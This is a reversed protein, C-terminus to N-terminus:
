IIKAGEERMAPVQLNGDATFTFNSPEKARARFFSASDKPIPIQRKGRSKKPAEAEAQAPAEAPALAPAAEEEEVEEEVPAEVEDPFMGEVFDNIAETAM